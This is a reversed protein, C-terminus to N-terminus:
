GKGLREVAETLRGWEDDRLAGTRLNQQDIRGVSGAMRLGLQDAGMEMSFIAVPLGQSLAVHEAINLAFATKGMSPRAALIILDGAQLGTTKRDLDYFGTRVGTVAQAGQEAMASVRDILRVVIEDMSHWTQQQRAGEEGIALIQTESEDLIQSVPRGAPNFARTVIEDGAAILKRLIARERVIEGYRRINSASAVSQALANLYPLGGCEDAKLSSKLQEFVTILRGQLHAAGRM